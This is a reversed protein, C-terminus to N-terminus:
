QAASIIIQRADLRYKFRTTPLVSELAESPTFNSVAGHLRTGMAYMRTIDDEFVLERGTERAAWKLFDLLTRNEIDFAPALGEAWKWSGDYPALKDFVVDDNLTLTLMDGAEARYSGGNDSNDTVDVTGDRVAVNMDGNLFAVAFRTGIDMASGVSTRVTISNNAYIAEGSDAYVRGNRLALEDISEFTATTGADFRLSLGNNVSLAIGFADTAIVDGPYIADGSSLGSALAGADSGVMAVTAIPAIRVEPGRRALGVALLVAAALAVPLGWRFTRRQRLTSRWEACVADHVRQQVDPPVEPRPGALRLLQAISDPADQKGAGSGTGSEEHKTM